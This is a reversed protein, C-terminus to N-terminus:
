TPPDTLVGTSLLWLLASFRNYDEGDAFKKIALRTAEENNISHDIRLKNGIKSRMKAMMEETIVAEPMKIEKPGKQM